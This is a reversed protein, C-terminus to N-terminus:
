NRTFNLFYFITYQINCKSANQPNAFKFLCKITEIIENKKMTFKENHCLVQKSISGFVKFEEILPLWFHIILKHETM